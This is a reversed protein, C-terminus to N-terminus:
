APDVGLPPGRRSSACSGRGSPRRSSASTPAEPQADRLWQGLTTGHVLEMALFIQGEHTGTEFV